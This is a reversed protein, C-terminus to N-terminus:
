NVELFDKEFFSLQGKNFMKPNVSLLLFSNNEKCINRIDNIFTLTNEFGKVLTIQDFCDMYVMTNKGKKVFDEVQPILDVDLKQPNITVEKDSQNFTFWFLPTKEFGYKERISQPPYKTICLGNAGHTIQDKFIEFGQEGHEEQVIYGMNSKLRYKRPGAKKKETSPEIMPKFLFLNYKLIAAGVFVAFISLSISGLPFVEIGLMSPFTNTGFTFIIVIFVGYFIHKIQKREITTKSHIYSYLFNLIGLITTILLWIFIFYFKPSLSVRYGWRSAQVDQVSIILNFICLLVVGILYLGFLAYKNRAFITRERPFVFSLHLLTLPVFIVGLYAIRGWLLGEENNSSFRLVAEGISFAVASLIFLTITRNQINKPNKYFVYIGILVSLVCAIIAPTAYLSLHM